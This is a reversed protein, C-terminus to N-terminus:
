DTIIYNGSEDQGFYRGLWNPEGYRFVLGEELLQLATEKCDEPVIYKEYYTYKGDNNNLSEVYEEYSAATSLLIVYKSRCVEDCDLSTQSAAILGRLRTDDIDVRGFSYQKDDSKVTAVGDGEVYMGDIFTDYVYKDYRGEAMALMENPFYGFTENDEGHNEIIFATKFQTVGLDIGYRELYGIANDMWSYVTVLTSNMYVYTGTQPRQDEVYEVCILYQKTGPEPRMYRDYNMKESDRRINELLTGLDFDGPKYDESGYSINKVSIDKKYRSYYELDSYRSEYWNAPTIAKKMLEVYLEDTVYYSREMIEGSRLLYAIQVHRGQYGQNDKPIMEHIETASRIVDRDYSQYTTFIGLDKDDDAATNWLQLDVRVVQEPAPVFEARGFGNSFVLVAAIGACVATTGAWKAVSIHFKRFAKGSILEMIVYIIFTSIILGMLWAGSDPTYSYYEYESNSAFPTFVMNWMPLSIALVVIGPIILSMGTYVYSKGVRESRRFKILFYAGVLFVLTLLLAPILLEARFIPLTGDLGITRDLELSSGVLLKQVVYAGTMFVMGVPSTAAVPYYMTIGNYSSGYTNNETIGIFLAHIVPIAINILVPYLSAEAKKGCLSIMLLSFAMQMICAFLGVFMCQIIISRVMEADAPDPANQFLFTKDVIVNTFIVGIIVAIFHPVISTTLVAALDAFYRTNSSVPLSYDMDVANRDYLYRFSRLTTVFTFVFLGILCIAGICMAMVSLSTLTDMLEMAQHYEQEYMTFDSATWKDSISETKINADALMSLILGSLPYSLLAFIGTMIMQPRLFRLKNLYYPLFKYFLGGSKASNVSNLATM